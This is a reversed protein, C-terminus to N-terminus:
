PTSWMLFDALLGATTSHTEKKISHRRFKSQHGAVELKCIQLCDSPSCDDFADNHGAGMSHDPKLTLPHAIFASIVAWSTVSARMMAIQRLPL